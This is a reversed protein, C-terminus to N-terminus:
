DFTQRAPSYLKELRGDMQALEDATMARMLWLSNKTLFRDEPSVCSFM